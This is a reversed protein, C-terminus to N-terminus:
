IVAVSPGRLGERPPHSAGAAEVVAPGLVDFMAQGGGLLDQVHCCPSQAAHEVDLAVERSGLRASLEPHLGVLALEVARGRCQRQLEKPPCLPSQAVYPTCTPHVGSWRKIGGSSGRIVSACGPMARAAGQLRGSARVYLGHAWPGRAARPRPQGEDVGGGKAARAKRWARSIMSPSGLLPRLWGSVMLMNISNDPISKTSCPLAWSASSTALAATLRSSRVVSGASSGKRTLAHVSSDATRM